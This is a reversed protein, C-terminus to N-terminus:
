RTPCTAILELAYRMGQVFGKDFDTVATEGRHKITERVPSLRKSGISVAKIGKCARINYIEDKTCDLMEAIETDCFFQASLKRVQEVFEANRSNKRVPSANTIHKHVWKRYAPVSCGCVVSAEGSTLGREYCQRRLEANETDIVM